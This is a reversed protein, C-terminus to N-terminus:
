GESLLEFIKVFQEELTTLKNKQLIQHYASEAEIIVLLRKKRNELRDIERYIRDLKNHIGVTKTTTKKLM